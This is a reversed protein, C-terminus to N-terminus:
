RRRSRFRRRRAGLATRPAFISAWAPATAPARVAGPQVLEGRQRHQGSAASLQESTPRPMPSSRTSTRRAARRCRQRGQRHFRGRRGRQRDGRLRKRGGHQGQGPRDLRAAHRVADADRHLRDAHHRADASHPRCRRHDVPDARDQRQRRRDRRQVDGIAQNVTGSDIAGILQNASSRRRTSAPPRRVSMTPSRVSIPSCGHRHRRHAEAITTTITNINQAANSAGTIASDIAEQQLRILNQTLSSVTQRRRHSLSDVTSPLSQAPDIAAVLRTRRPSPRTTSQRRRRAPHRHGTIPGLGALLQDIDGSREAITTTIRNVNQAANSAGSIASNIAEKQAGLNPWPRSM